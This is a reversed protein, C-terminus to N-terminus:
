YQSVGKHGAVLALEWITVALQCRTGRPEFEWRSEPTTFRLEARHGVKLVRLSNAIVVYAFILENLVSIFPSIGWSEAGFGSALNKTAIQYCIAGLIVTRGTGGTILGKLTM